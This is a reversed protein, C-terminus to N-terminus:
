RASAQITLSTLSLVEEPPLTQGSVVLKVIGRRDVVIMGSRTTNSIADWLGYSASVEGTADGLLEVGLKERNVMGRLSQPNDFTVGVLTAPLKAFDAVVKQFPIFDSKRSMFLLVVWDGRLSRLSRDRGTTSPLEFSPADDGATVHGSLSLSGVPTTMQGPNPIPQGGGSKPEVQALAPSALSVLLLGCWITRM